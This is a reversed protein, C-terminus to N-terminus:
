ARGPKCETDYPFGRRGGQCLWMVLIIYWVIIGCQSCAIAESDFHSVPVLEMETVTVQWVNCVLASFVSEFWHCCATGKSIMVFVQVIGEFGLFLCILQM